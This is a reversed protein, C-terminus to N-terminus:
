LTNFITGSENVGRGGFNSNKGREAVKPHRQGIALPVASGAGSVAPTKKRPGKAGVAAM